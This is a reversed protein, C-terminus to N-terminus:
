SRERRAFFVLELVDLSFASFVRIPHCSTRREETGVVWHATYWCACEWDVYTWLSSASSHSSPSIYLAVAGSFKYPRTDQLSSSSILRIVTLSTHCQDSWFPIQSHHHVPILRLFILYITYLNLTVLNFYTYQVDLFYIEGRAATQFVSWVIKLVFMTVTQPDLVARM